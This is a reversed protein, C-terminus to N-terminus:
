SSLCNLFHRITKEYTEIQGDDELGKVHHTTFFSIGNDYNIKSISESLEIEQNKLMTKGLSQIKKM